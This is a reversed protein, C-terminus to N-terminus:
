SVNKIAKENNERSSFTVFAYGKNLGTNENIFLSLEIIPGYPELLELIEDEFIDEPLRGIFSEKGLRHQLSLLESSSSSTSDVQNNNEDLFAPAKRKLEFWKRWTIIRMKNKVELVYDNRELLAKLKQEDPGPRAPISLRRHKWSPSSAIRPSIPSDSRYPSPSPALKKWDEVLRDVDLRGNQYNEEMKILREWENFNKDDVNQLCDFLKEDDLDGLELKDVINGVM